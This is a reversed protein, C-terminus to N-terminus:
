NHKDGDDKNDDDDDGSPRPHFRPALICNWCTCKPANEIDQRAGEANLRSQINNSLHSYLKPPYPKLLACKM